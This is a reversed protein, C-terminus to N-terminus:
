LIHLEVLLSRHCHGGDRQGHHGLRVGGVVIRLVDSGKQPLDLSYEVGGGDPFQAGPFALDGQAGVGVVQVGGGGAGPQPAPSM